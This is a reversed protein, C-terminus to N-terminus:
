AGLDINESIIVSKVYNTCRTQLSQRHKKRLGLFMPDGLVDQEFNHKIRTLKKDDGLRLRLIKDVDRKFTKFLDSMNQISTKRYDHVAISLRMVIATAAITAPLVFIWNGTLHLVSDM